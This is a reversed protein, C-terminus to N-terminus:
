GTIPPVENKLSLKMLCSKLRSVIVTCLSLYVIGAVLFTLTLMQSSNVRSTDLTGAESAKTYHDRTYLITIGLGCGCPVGGGVVGFWSVSALCKIHLHIILNKEGHNEKNKM